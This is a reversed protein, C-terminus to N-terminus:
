NDNQVLEKQLNDVYKKHEETLLNWNKLMDFTIKIGKKTLSTLMKSNFAEMSPVSSIGSESVLLGKQTLIKRSKYFTSASIGFTNGIEKDDRIIKSYHKHKSDFDAQSILILYKALGPLGLEKVLKPIISRPICIFGNLTVDYNIKM